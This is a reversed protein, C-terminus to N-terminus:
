VTRTGTRLYISLAALTDSVEHKQKAQEELPKSNFLQHQEYWANVGLDAKSMFLVCVKLHGQAARALIKPFETNRVYKSALLLPSLLVLAWQSEGLAQEIAANWDASPEIQRDYWTRTKGHNELARLTTLVKTMLETDEGRAYCVFIQQQAKPVSAVVGTPSTSAMCQRIVKLSSSVLNLLGEYERADGTLLRQGHPASPVKFTAALWARRAPTLWHAAASDCHPLFLLGTGMQQEVLELYARVTAPDPVGGDLASQFQQIQATGDLASALDIGLIEKSRQVLEVQLLDEESRRRFQVDAFGRVTNLPTLWDGAANPRLELPTDHLCSAVMHAVLPDDFGIVLQEAPLAAEGGQLERLALPVFRALGVLVACVVWERCAPNAFLGQQWENGKILMQCRVL